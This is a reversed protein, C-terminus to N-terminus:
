DSDRKHSSADKEEGRDDHSFGARVQDIGDPRRQCGVGEGASRGIEAVGIPRIIGDAEISESCRSDSAPFFSVKNCRRARMLMEISFLAASTLDQSFTAM